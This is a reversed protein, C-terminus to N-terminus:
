HQQSDAQDDGGRHQDNDQEDFLPVKPFVELIQRVQMAALTVCEM